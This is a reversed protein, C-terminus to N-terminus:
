LSVNYIIDLPQRTPLMIPPAHDYSDDGRADEDNNKVTITGDPIHLIRVYGFAYNIRCTLRKDVAIFGLM